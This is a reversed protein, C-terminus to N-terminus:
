KTIPVAVRLTDWGLVLDTADGDKNFTISFAELSKGDNTVPAEVRVVDNEEKYSYAGWVHLDSNLIVTWKDENPITYLSYSGAKVEKGGFKVDQFFTIETAENAGTRWVKGYKVLKGFVERGKMQPRSYLVRAVVEGQRGGERYYVMDMPSKDLDSFKQAQADCACLLIGLLVVLFNLGKIQNM